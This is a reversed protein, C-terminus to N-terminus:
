RLDAAAATDLWWELSGGVPALNQIPLVEPQRPGELVRQLIGAKDAGHVLVWLAQAANLVPLTLTLRWEQQVEVYQACVQRQREHLVETGPFLSATHGDDGLGLLILDMCARVGSGFGIQLEHEYAQAAQAPPNEGRMRHVNAAPVSVHQLLAEHVMRYNSRPADPPVCREDGFWIEIRPWDLADRYPAAALKEYLPRPTNGGSLAVHFRGRAAIAAQAQAVFTEAIAHYLSTVDAYRHLVPATSLRVTM